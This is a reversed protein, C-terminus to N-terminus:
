ESGRLPRGYLPDRHHPVRLRHVRLRSLAIREEFMYRWVIVTPVALILFRHYFASFSQTALYVTLVLAELHLLQWIGSRTRRRWYVFAFGRGIVYFVAVAGWGFEGYLDSVSIASSGPLPLWGVTSLWDGQTLHGLGPYNSTVWTAGADEYKTPWLQRPIPRVVLNVALERGWTYEGTRRVATVFGSGYIFNNGQDLDQQGISSVFAQWDVSQQSGLYLFQRQSAVFAVALAITGMAPWIKWLRPTRVRTLLWGVVVASLSMFLPGRRGGLTGQLLNPLLGLAFVALTGATFGRRYRALTVMAAGVLGLNMSESLYGSSSYGGGKSQSYAAVLGGANAIGIAYSVLAWATVAWAVQVLNAPGFTGRSKARRRARRFAVPPRALLGLMLAAVAALHLELVFQVDEQNPLFESVSSRVLWPDIVVGYLFLPGLFMAPHLVDRSVQYAFVTGVILTLGTIALWAMSVPETM